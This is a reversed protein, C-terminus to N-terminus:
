EAADDVSWANLLKYTSEAARGFRQVTRLLVEAECPKEFLNNIRKLDDETLDDDLTGAIVQGNERLINFDRTHLTLGHFVGRVIEIRQTVRRELRAAAERVQLRDFRKEVGTSTALRLDTKYNALTKFFAKLSSLFDASIDDADHLATTTTDPSEAVAIITRTVREITQGHLALLEADRTQPAFEFGFSGRPTGTLLLRPQVSGPSRNQRGQKQERVATREDLLAQQEFMRAYQKLAEGALRSDIGATGEVADGQLFFAGRLVEGGEGAQASAEADPESALERRARDLRATAQPALVPDDKAREALRELEALHAQNFADDTM